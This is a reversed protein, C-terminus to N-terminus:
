GMARYEEPIPLNRPLVPQEGGNVRASKLQYVYALVQAVALYLAEPIEEDLDTSYYLARALPPAEVIPVAADDAIKRIQRAILDAGKAVIRPAGGQNMQYRLAVAFHTPNTIVVDAKPVQEMMRSQALERQLARIRNKVEPKGESDKYEDKIEQRTMKLKRKHEWLQYPVDIAAVLLLVLSLMFFCLGLLQGSRALALTLPQRNLLLIEDGYTMFLFVTVGGILAVKLISKALEILGHLSFIRGLGRLPSLKELKPLFGEPSFAWGGFAMPACLAVVFLVVFLPVFGILTDFLMARFDLWAAMPDFILERSLSMQRSMLRGMDEIMRAGYVWLLGTGVVLIAFTNFERSRAIQGKKRADELRKSTPEESREQDSDEAM